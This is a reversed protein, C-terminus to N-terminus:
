LHQCPPCVIYGPRVVELIKKHVQWCADTCAEFDFRPVTKELDAKLERIDKSEIFILNAALTEEPRLGLVSFMEQVRLQHQKKGAEPCPHRPCKGGAHVWCHATYASWDRRGLLHTDSLLKDLVPNTGDAAPNFGLFYYGSETRRLTEIGSYLIQGNRKRIEDPLSKLVKRLDAETMAKLM